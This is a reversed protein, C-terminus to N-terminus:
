EPLAQVLLAAAVGDHHAAPHVAEGLVVIGDDDPQAAVVQHAPHAVRQPRDGERGRAHPHLPDDLAVGAVQVVVGGGLHDPAAVALAAAEDAVHVVRVPQVHVGVVHDSFM